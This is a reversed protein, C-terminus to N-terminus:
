KLVLYEPTALTLLLALHVRELLKSTPFAAVADRILAVTNTSLQNSALVLNAEDVLAQPNGALALWASYNPRVDSRAFGDQTTIVSQMFNLYGAISTETTIQLEPAVRNASALSTNPPVYGPRYFNFVSTSRMPSQGLYVDPASLNPVEWKGSASTAKCARAWQTLRHVPERLKGASTSARAAATDRAEPDLLIARVVAGLNGRAGKGDNAWVASIRGVYAASPNSTVLRQILQRGLFPGVNPHAALTDLAIRLSAVGSTGAAITVGLFAKSGSEHRSDTNTMPTSLSDVSRYDVGYDWGTFVRSLGTVDAQDYTDAAVGGQLSGDPNLQVLGISFLQMVERAYNEDPQRGQSDARRSGRMSLWNGMAPSLTVAELLARYNGLAHQELLDLYHGYQIGAWRGNLNDGVVLIQSLAFVVRQRLHDPSSFFKRWVTYDTGQSRFEYFPTDRDQAKLWSVHGESLPKLVQEDIWAAAGLSQTREIEVRDVGM